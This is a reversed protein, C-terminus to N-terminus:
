LFEFQCSDLFIVNDRKKLFVRKEVFFDRKKVFHIYTCKIFDKLFIYEKKKEELFLLIQENLIMFLM